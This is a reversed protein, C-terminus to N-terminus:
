ENYYLPLAPMPNVSEVYHLNVSGTYTLGDTHTYSFQAMSGSIVYEVTVDSLAYYHPASIRQDYLYLNSVSKTYVTPGDDSDGPTTGGGEAEISADSEIIRKEPIKQEGLKEAIKKDKDAELALAAEYDGQKFLKGIQTKIEELFELHLGKPTYPELKAEGKDLKLLQPAEMVFESPSEDDDDFKLLASNDDSLLQVGIIGENLYTRLSNLEKWRDKSSAKLKPVEREFISSQVYFETGRVGMVTTPTKIKYKSSKDLKKNLKSGVGGNKLTIATDTAKGSKSLESLVVTSKASVTIRKDGDLELVAKSKEGTYITDGEALSMNQFAKIKKESAERKVQVTGKFEVLKATRVNVAYVPLTASLLALVVIYILIKKKM